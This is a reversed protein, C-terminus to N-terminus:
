RYQGTEETSVRKRGGFYKIKFLTIYPQSNVLLILVSLSAIYELRLYSTM